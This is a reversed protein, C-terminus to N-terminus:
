WVGKDSGTFRLSVAAASALPPLLALRLAAPLSGRAATGALQRTYLGASHPMVPVRIFRARISTSEAGFRAKEVVEDPLRLARGSLRRLYGDVINLYCCVGTWIGGLDAAKKLEGFDVTGGEVLAATNVIDSIRFYFHRYMRQLTAVVIREEPAPVMFRYGGVEKAVRRDVFRRALRLHEGTQGLRQVHIEVAEPLGPVEFNLKHALRDGWSPPMQQARLGWLMFKRLLSEDATTYLDLDSGFDPWHDLTKIVTVPCGSSELLDCIRRLHRVANAIRSKERSLNAEAWERISAPPFPYTPNVASDSRVVVDRIRELTRVLVHNCNAIALFADRESDTMTAFSPLLEYRNAPALSIQLLLCVILNEEDSPLTM